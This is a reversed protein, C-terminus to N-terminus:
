LILSHLQVSWSCQGVGAASVVQQQMDRMKEELQVVQKGSILRVDEMEATTKYLQEKLITVDIRLQDADM